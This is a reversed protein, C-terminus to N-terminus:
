PALVSHRGGCESCVIILRSGVEIVDCSQEKYYSQNSACEANKCHYAHPQKKHKKKKDEEDLREQVFVETEELIEKCDAETQQSRVLQKRLRGNHKKEVKLERLERQLKKLKDELENIKRKAVREEATAGM